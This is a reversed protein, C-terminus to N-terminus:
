LGLNDILMLPTLDLTAACGAIFGIAYCLVRNEVKYPTDWAIDAEWLDPYTERLTKVEHGIMAILASDLRVIAIGDTAPGRVPETADCPLNADGTMHFACLCGMAVLCPPRVGCLSGGSSAFAPPKKRRKVSVSVVRKNTAM